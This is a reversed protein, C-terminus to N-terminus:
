KFYYEGYLASHGDVWKKMDEVQYRYSRIEFNFDNRTNILTKDTAFGDFPIIETDTKNFIEKFLLLLHYKDIIENPTLQYLGSLNQRIAEGIARALEITTVGNWLAKTFGRIHGNQQMFWNLLGTGDRHRDPGVISMRFTLDKNNKVEGMAKSRDYNTTGDPIDSEVYGGRSGSFVCDTSLHILKVPTNIYKQAIMLPLYSNLLVALDPRADSQKQLVGISNVVVDPKIEDLWENIATIDTADISRSNPTNGSSRSATYVDYGLESLYIAVVHGAMGTGGLVAIKKVHETKM